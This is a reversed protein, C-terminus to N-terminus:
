MSPDERGAEKRWRRSGVAPVPGAYGLFAAGCWPSRHHSSRVDMYSSEASKKSAINGSHSM